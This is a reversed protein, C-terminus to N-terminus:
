ATEKGHFDRLRRFLASDFEQPTMEM